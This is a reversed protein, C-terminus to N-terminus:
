RPPFANAARDLARKLAIDFTLDEDRQRATPWDPQLARM